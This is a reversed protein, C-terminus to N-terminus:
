AIYNGYEIYQYVFLLVYPYIGNSVERLNERLIKSFKGSYNSPVEGINQRERYKLYERNHIFITKNKLIFQDSNPLPIKKFNFVYVLYSITIFIELCFNLM